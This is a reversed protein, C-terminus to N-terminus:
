VGDTINKQRAAFARESLTAVVDELGHERALTRPLERDDDAIPIGEREYETATRHELVGPLFARDADTAAGASVHESDATEGLYTELASIRAEHAAKTTFALPDFLLFLLFLAANRWRSGSQPTVFGDSMTAALLESMMSLGFGKYGSQQGGLPLVAGEGNDNFAAADEVPAGSETVTRAPDLPAGTAQRVNLKRWAVQSTAMDLVVPHDLADFSPLGFAVPNTAFRRQASGPVTVPKGPTVNVFGLFGLGADAAQEAFWGIRGPHTAHPRRPARGPGLPGERYRLGDGGPRRVPRATAERGVYQGYAHNGDVLATTEWDSMVSPRADPDIHDIDVRRASGSSLRTGHSPYGRLDAGVLSTSVAEAV